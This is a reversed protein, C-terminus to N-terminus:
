SSLKVVGFRSLKAQCGALTSKIAIIIDEQGLVGSSGYLGSVRPLHGKPAEATFNVMSIELWQYRGGRKHRYGIRDCFSKYDCGEADYIDCKVSFGFRGASYKLWLRDGGIFERDASLFDLKRDGFLVLFRNFLESRERSNTNGEKDLMTWVLPFAVGKHVIGLMFINFTTEGYQWETRDCSLIWPEPIQMLRVVTKAIESYDVEFERFFRQLRKYHSEM